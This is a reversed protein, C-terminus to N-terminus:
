RAASSLAPGAMFYQAIAYGADRAGADAFRTVIARPATPRVRGVAAAQCGWCAGTPTRSVSLGPQRRVIDGLRWGSPHILVAHGHSTVGVCSGNTKSTPRLQSPSSALM